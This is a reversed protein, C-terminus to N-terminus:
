REPEVVRGVAADVGGEGTDVPELYFRAWTLRGARAGFIIVGRLVQRRGDLHHGALEWESWVLDGDVATRLVTARVDPVGSFIRTWNTRVQDRGEFGRGPHAPTENRYDAAFCAVVAEIDHDDVAQRLREVLENPDMWKGNWTGLIFTHVRLRRLALGLPGVVAGSPLLAGALLVFGGEFPGALQEEVLPVSRRGDLGDGTGGADRRCRHVLGVSALGTEDAVEAGQRKCPGTGHVGLLAGIRQPAGLIGAGYDLAPTRKDGLDRRAYRRQEQQQAGCGLCVGVGCGEVRLEILVPEVPHSVVGAVEGTSPVQPRADARALGAIDEPEAAGRLDVLEQHLLAAPCRLLEPPEDDVGDGTGEESLTPSPCQEPALGRLADPRCSTSSM